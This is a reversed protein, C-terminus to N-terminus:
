SNRNEVAPKMAALKEGLQKLTDPDDTNAVQNSHTKLTDGIKSVETLLSELFNVRESLESVTSSLHSNGDATSGGGGISSTNTTSRKSEKEKSNSTRSKKFNEITEILKVDSVAKAEELPTYGLRIVHTFLSVCWVRSVLFASYLAYATRLCTTWKTVIM